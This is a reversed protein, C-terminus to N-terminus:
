CFWCRTALTTARRMGPIVCSRRDSGGGGVAAVEFGFRGIAIGSIGDLGGDTKTFWGGVM